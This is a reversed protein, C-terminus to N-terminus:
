DAREPALQRPLEAEAGAAELLGAAGVLADAGVVLVGGVGAVREAREEVVVAGAEDQDVLPDGVGALEVLLAAEGAAAELRLEAERQREGLRGLEGLAAQEDDAQGGGVGGRRVGVGVVDLDAARPPALRELTELVDDAAHLRRPPRGAGLYAE